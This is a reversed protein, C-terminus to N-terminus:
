AALRFSLAARPLVAHMHCSEGSVIVCCATACRTYPVVRRIHDRLFLQKPWACERGGKACPELVDHTQNHMVTLEEAYRCSARYGDRFMTCRTTTTTTTTSCPYLITCCPVTTRRPPLSHQRCQPDTALTFWSSAYTAVQDVAGGPKPHWWRSREIRLPESGHPVGKGYDYLMINCPHVAFRDSWAVDYRCLLPAFSPRRCLTPLRCPAIYTAQRM